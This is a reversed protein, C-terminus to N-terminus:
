VSEVLFVGVAERLLVGGDHGRNRYRDYHNQFDDYFLDMLEEKEQM